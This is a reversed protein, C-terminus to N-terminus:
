WGLLVRRRIRHRCCLVVWSVVNSTLKRLNFVWAASLALLVAEVFDHDNGETRHNAPSVPERRDLRKPFGFRVPQIPKQLQPVPNGRM